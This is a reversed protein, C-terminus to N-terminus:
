PYNAKGMPGQEPFHWSFIANLPHRCVFKLSKMFQGAQQTGQSNPRQGSASAMSFAGVLAISVLVFQVSTSLQARPQSPFPPGPGVPLPRQEGLGARPGVPERGPRVALSAACSAQGLENTATATYNGADATRAERLLLTHREGEARILLHGDSRLTSGDKQWSVPPFCCPAGDGQGM